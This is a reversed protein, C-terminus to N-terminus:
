IQRRTRAGREGKRQHRDRDTKAHLYHVIRRSSRSSKEIRNSEIGSRMRLGRLGQPSMGAECEGESAELGALDWTSICQHAASQGGTRVSWAGQKECSVRMMWLCV